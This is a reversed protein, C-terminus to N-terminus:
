KRTWKKPPLDAPLQYLSVARPPEHFHIEGVQAHDGVIGIQQAEVKDGHVENGHVIKDRGVFDGDRVAVDGTVVAGGETKITIQDSSAPPSPQNSRRRFFRALELVDKFGALAAIVAALAVFFLILAGRLGASLNPLIFLSVAWVVVTLLVIAVLARVMERRMM